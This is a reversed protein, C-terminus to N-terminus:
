SEGIWARAAEVACAIARDETARVVAPDVRESAGRNLIVGLVCGAALGMSRAVTFLTASEMEYSLCGLQIWEASSGRLARPVYGSFSDYREQGPYFTDSSVVVGIHATAGIRAAARELGAVWRHDAIAPFELPAYHRSAGDLRVAGAAVILDGVGIREQIAGTTGVRLFSDIGLTALEEMAIATSPGGIGTSTVLVHKAGVRALMSRYERHHALEVAEADLARAIRPVRFPDGPLIAATAGRLAGAELDIHYAKM